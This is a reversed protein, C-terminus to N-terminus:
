RRSGAWVFGPLAERLYEFDRTITSRSAGLEAIFRRMPVPRQQQLLRDIRVLRELRNM